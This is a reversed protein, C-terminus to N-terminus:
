EEEEKREKWKVIKNIGEKTLLEKPSIIEIEGKELRERFIRKLGSCETLQSSLERITNLAEIELEEYKKEDLLSKQIDRKNRFHGTDLGCYEKLDDLNLYFDLSNLISTIHLDEVPFEHMKGEIEVRTPRHQIIARTHELIDDWYDSIVKVTIACLCRKEAETFEPKKSM